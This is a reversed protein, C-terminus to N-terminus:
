KEYTTHQDEHVKYIKRTVDQALLRLEQFM